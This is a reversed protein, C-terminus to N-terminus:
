GGGSLLGGASGNAAAAGGFTSNTAAKAGGFLSPTITQTAGFGPTSISNSGFLSSGSPNASNTAATNAGFVSHSKSMTPQRQLM